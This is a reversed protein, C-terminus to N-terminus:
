RNGRCDARAPGSRRRGDPMASPAVPQWGGEEPQCRIKGGAVPGLVLGQARRARAPDGAERPRAQPLARGRPPVGGRQADSYLGSCGPTIRGIPEVDTMEFCLLGAGSNSLMGLHALHWDTMGGEVASYQCMPSVMIRNELALGRLEIPSFLASTM